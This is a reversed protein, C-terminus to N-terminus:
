PRSIAQSVVSFKIPDKVQFTNNNMLRFELKYDQPILWSFDLLIEYGRFTRNAKTWPIVEFQHTASQTNYLKYEVDFPLNNNQNPYLHKVEIEIRRINNDKIKEGEKIGYYNFTYNDFNIRDLAFNYYNGSNILYFEQDIEKYKGNQFLKWRDTFLVADPYSSSDINVIIKYIGLGINQISDGTIDTIEKGM